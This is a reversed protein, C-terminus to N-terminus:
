GEEFREFLAELEQMNAPIDAIENQSFYVRYAPDLRILQYYDKVSKGFLNFYNEFIDPMWYWSPGMDFSFGETQWLR